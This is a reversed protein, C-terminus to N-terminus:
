KSNIRPIPGLKAARPPLPRRNEKYKNPNVEVVFIDDHPFVEQWAHAFRKAITLLRDYMAERRDPSSGHLSNNDGTLANVRYVAGQKNRIHVEVNKM